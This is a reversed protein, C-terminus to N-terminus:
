FLNEWKLGKLLPWFCGVRKIETREIGQIKGAFLFKAMLIEPRLPSMVRLLRIKATMRGRGESHLPLLPPLRSKEGIKRAITPPM